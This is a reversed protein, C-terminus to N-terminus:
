GQCVQEILREVMWPGDTLNAGHAPTTGTTAHVKCFNYAAVFLTIAHRHNALKRSWGLGLRVFRKNFHRVTLNVREVHSTSIRDERPAGARVEIKTGIFPAPSYRRMAEVEGPPTAFKKVMLAYDLRELLYQRIIAPYATFADSTIQVRGTIRSALDKVFIDTSEGDRKGTYHSIILKNRAEVALFTYFDGREKDDPTTRNQRVGVRAWLEDIQISTTDLNRINRDLFDACKDGIVSLVGLVTHADCGALRGTARVGVGECLLKVIQVVKQHELRVDDLPQSESFTKGCRVCRFRQVMRNKNRFTGFRKVEGNCCHCNLKVKGAPFLLTSGYRVSIRSVTLGQSNRKATNM